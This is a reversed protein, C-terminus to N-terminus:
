AANEEAERPYIDPRLEHRSVGTLREIDRVRLPPCITWQGVAQPTIGLAVGIASAGGAQEIARRLAATMHEREDMAMCQLM